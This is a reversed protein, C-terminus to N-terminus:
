AEIPAEPFLLLLFRNPLLVHFYDGISERQSNEAYNSEEVGNNEKQSNGEYNNGVGATSEKQSNGGAHTNEKGQSSGEDSVVSDTCDICQYM